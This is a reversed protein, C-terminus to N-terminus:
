QKEVLNVLIEAPANLPQEHWVGKRDFYGGAGLVAAHSFGFCMEVILGRGSRRDVVYDYGMCQCGLEDSTRFASDRIDAGVLERDYYFHGGGSARFDGPRNPRCFYSLKDGVVVIKLDYGDTPVYEQFYVYDTERPFRRASAKTRLFEPLRALRRKVDAWTKASKWQSSAKFAIGPAPSYGKRFMRKAHKRAEGAHHVLKVNHAGSGSALKSVLPYQADRGIWELAAEETFFAWNRPTPAGVSRLACAEAVKDDFHWADGFDPFIKLGRRKAAYLVSRAYKVDQHVYNSMHWLLVGFEEMREMFEEGYGDVMEYAIGNAECHDRWVPGWLTSHDFLKRNEHIAIKGGKM